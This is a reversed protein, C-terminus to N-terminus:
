GDKETVAETGNMAMNQIMNEYAERILYDLSLPAEPDFQAFGISVHINQTNAIEGSEVGIKLMIREAVTDANDRSAKPLFAVLEDKDYRALVDSGRLSDLFAHAVHSVIQEAEDDGKEQIIKDLNNINLIVVLSKQSFNVAAKLLPEVHGKFARRNALGTNEDITVLFRGSPDKKRDGATCVILVLGLIWSIALFLPLRWDTDLLGIPIRYLVLLVVTWIVGAIISIGVKMMSEQLFVKKVIM